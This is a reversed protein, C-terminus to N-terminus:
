IENIIISSIEVVDGTLNTGTGIYVNLGISTNTPTFLIEVEEWNPGIVSNNYTVSTVNGWNFFVNSSGQPQRCRIIAKYPQGVTLNTVTRSENTDNDAKLELRIAYSDSIFLDTSPVSTITLQSNSWGSRSDTDDGVADSHVYYNTLTPVPPTYIEWDGFPLWSNNGNRGISFVRHQLEDKRNRVYENAGQSEYNIQVKGAGKAYVTIVENSIFGTTTDDPINITIDTTGDYFLIYSNADDNIINYGDSITKYQISNSESILSEVQSLPTLDGPAIANAFNSAIQNSGFFYGVTLNSIQTDGLAEFDEVNLLNNNSIDVDRTAVHSWESSLSSSIVADVYKKDILSNEEFEYNHNLPYQLGTSLNLANTSSSLSISKLNVITGNDLNLQSGGDLDVQSSGSFSVSSGANILFNSGQNFTAQAGSDVLFVSSNTFTAQAGQDFLTNSSNTATLTAGNSVTTVSSSSFEVTSGNIFSANVGGNILFNSNGGVSGTSANGLSVFGQPTGYGINAKTGVISEVVLNQGVVPTKGLISIELNGNTLSDTLKISSLGSNIRALGENLYLSSGGQFSSHSTINFFGDGLLNVGNGLDGGLYLEGEFETLGTGITLTNTSPLNKAKVFNLRNTISDWVVTHTELTPNELKNLTSMKIEGDFEYVQSNGKCYFTILLILIYNKM